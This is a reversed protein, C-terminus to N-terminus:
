FLSVLLGKIGACTWNLMCEQGSVELAPAHVMCARRAMYRQEKHMPQAHVMMM